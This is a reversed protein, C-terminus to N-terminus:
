QKSPWTCEKLVEGNYTTWYNDMGRVQLIKDADADIEWYKGNEYIHCTANGIHQVFQNKYGSIDSATIGTKSSMQDAVADDFRYLVIAVFMQLSVATLVLLLYICLLRKNEKMAGCVGFLSCGLIAAGLGMIFYVTSFSGSPSEFLAQWETSIKVHVSAALLVVGLLSFIVNSVVLFCRAAGKSCVCRTVGRIVCLM